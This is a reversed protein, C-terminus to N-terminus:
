VLSPSPSPWLWMTPQLRRASSKSDIPRRQPRRAAWAGVSESAGGGAPLWDRLRHEDPFRRSLATQAVPNLLWSLQATSPSYLALPISLTFVAAMALLRLAVYDALRATTGARLLQQNGAAYRWIFFELLAVLALTAAYFVTALPISGYRAILQTPVPIFAVGLLFFLNLWALRYDYDVLFHFMRHHGMWFQAIVLFSLGYAAVGPILGLLAGPLAAAAPAELEPVRIELALLTIAIAFVADSFFVIREFELGRREHGPRRRGGAGLMVGPASPGEGADDEPPSSAIGSVASRGAPDAAPAPSAVRNRADEREM